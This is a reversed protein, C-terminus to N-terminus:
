RRAYFFYLPVLGIVALGVFLPAVAASAVTSAPDASGGLWQDAAVSLSELVAMTLIAGTALYGWPRRNWLWAAALVNLPIWFALDQVYTPVMALGTGDLIAAPDAGLVATVAGKLWALANVGIVLLMYVAVPRTPVPGRLEAALPAPDTRRIVALASWIALGLMSEYALFLQNFPTGAVFMFGNYALFGLGGLWLLPGRSWGRVTAAVGALLAPTALFLTVLATGRASGNMVPPGTLVSPVFATFASATAAVVALLASTVVAPDWLRASAPASPRTSPRVSRDLDRAM